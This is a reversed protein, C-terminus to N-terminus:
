RPYADMVDEMTVELAQALRSLTRASGPKRGKEIETLYSPAVGARVALARQTLGRKERWIRVPHEGDLLRRAEEDTLYNRRAAEKGIAKEHARRGAVAARDEADELESVLRALEGRTMTVTHKTQSLIKIANM